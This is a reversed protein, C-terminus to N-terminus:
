HKILIKNQTLTIVSQSVLGLVNWRYSKLKLYIGEDRSFISDIFKPQSFSLLNRSLNRNRDDTNYVIPPQLNLNATSRPDPSKAKSMQIRTEIIPLIPNKVM